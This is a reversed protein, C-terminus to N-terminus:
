SEAARMREVWRVGAGRSGQPLPDCRHSTIKFRTVRGVIRNLMRNLSHHGEAAWKLAALWEIDAEALQQSPFLKSMWPGGLSEKMILLTQNGPQPQLEWLHVAEATWATGSWGLRREPEFLQVQSHITTSGNSWFFRTCSALPGEGEVSQIQKQWKPWSPADVLLRRVRSPSAAIQMQLHRSWNGDGELRPKADEAAYKPM